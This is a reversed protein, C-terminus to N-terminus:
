TWEYIRYTKYRKGGLAEISRDMLVNDELVWSMEGGEYGLRKARRFLEAYFGAAVGATRYEQIVGLVIVRVSTISRKHYLIKLLGLPFLRGNTHKLAQNIDPLALAFGVVRGKVEGLLVLEPELISKMDRSMFLFEDRTMPVFGWNRSWASNYVEWVAEVDERFANMRIPRIGVEKLETTRRALREIRGNAGGNTAAYYAYLDKAKRLGAGELLASYYSPNYTMMVQPCSDFGEVLLGCEYNTSPNVPGRVVKAGRSRLWDRAAGLLANAAAQSQVCEFFGFFGASENHFRNHNHNLIAAIRGITRRGERALFCQAEAHRYFPHKEFDFLEKQAIRLPPVWYPDDRYFSYPFDVFEKLDRPSRVPLVEIEGVL